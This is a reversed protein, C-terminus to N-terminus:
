NYQGQYGLYVLQTSSINPGSSEQKNGTQGLPRFGSHSWERGKVTSKVHLLIFLGLSSTRKVSVNLCVGEDWSIASVFFCWSSSRELPGLISLCSIPFPLLFLTVTLLQQDITFSRHIYKLIRKARTRVCACAHTCTLVSLPWLNIDPAKRLREGCKKSLLERM